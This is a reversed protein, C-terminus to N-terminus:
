IHQGPRIDAFFSSVLEKTQARRDGQARAAPIPLFAPQPQALGSRTLMYFRAKRNNTSTGWEAEFWGKTGAKAPGSVAHEPRHGFIDQFVLGVM